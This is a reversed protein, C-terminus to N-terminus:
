RARHAHGHDRRRGPRARRLGQLAGDLDGPTSRPSWTPTSSARRRPRGGLGRRCGGHTLWGLNLVDDGSYLALGTESCSGCAATSTASPTRSRSSSRTARRRPRLHGARDHRRHPRPHRLAHGAPRQRRRGGRLARALGGPHAQQLVAHGAARRRRGVKQAQQALEVSHATNNTGVGAVVTCRDGVAEVVARLIEGDEAVTTTPSEGTTGSVVLGDNGHDVLHTPSGRPGTSTSPERRRHVAHGDRDAGPRVTAAPLSMRGLNDMTTGLAPSATSRPTPM